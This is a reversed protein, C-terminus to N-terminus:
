CPETAVPDGGEGAAGSEEKEPTPRRLAAERDRAKQRPTLALGAGMPTALLRRPIRTKRGNRRSYASVFEDM